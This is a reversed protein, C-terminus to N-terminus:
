QDLRDRAGSASAGASRALEDWAEGRVRWVRVEFEGRADRGVIAHLWGDWASARDTTSPRAPGRPHSHWVGVVELGLRRAELEFALHDEPHLEFARAARTAVNRGARVELVEIREGERRGLLVGCAEHPAAERAWRKLFEADTPRLSLGFIASASM